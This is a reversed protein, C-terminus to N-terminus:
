TQFLIEAGVLLDKRSTHTINFNPREPRKIVSMGPGMERAYAKVQELNAWDIKRM